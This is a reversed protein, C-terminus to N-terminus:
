VPLPIPPMKPLHSRAPASMRWVGLVVLGLGTLDFMSKLVFTLVGNEVGSFLGAPKATAGSTLAAPSASGAGAGIGAGVGAAPPAGNGYQAVFATASDLQARYNSGDAFESGQVAQVANWSPETNWGSVGLLGTQGAQGGKLFMLTSQAVNERASLPGWASIQQFPGRSSSMSGGMSAPFDGYNINKLGSEALGAEITDLEAMQTDAPSLGLSKVESIAQQGVAIQDPNFTVTM